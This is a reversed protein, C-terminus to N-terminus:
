RMIWSVVRNESNKVTSANRKRCFIIFHYVDADSPFSNKFTRTTYKEKKRLLAHYIIDKFKSCGTLFLKRWPGTVAGVKIAIENQVIGFSWKHNQIIEQLRSKKERKKLNSYVLSVFVFKNSRNKITSFINLKLNNEM